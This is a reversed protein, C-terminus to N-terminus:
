DRPQAASTQAPHTIRLAAAISIASGVVGLAASFHRLSRTLATM